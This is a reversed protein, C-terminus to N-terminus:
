SSPAEKKNDEEIYKEFWSNFTSSKYMAISGDNIFRVVVMVEYDPDTYCVEVALVELLEGTDPDIYLMKEESNQIIVEPPEVVIQNITTDTEANPKSVPNTCAVIFISVLILTVILLLKKM